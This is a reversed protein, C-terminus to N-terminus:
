AVVGKCWGEDQHIKMDPWKSICKSTTHLPFKNPSVPRVNIVVCDQDCFSQTGYAPLQPPTGMAPVLLSSCKLLALLMAGFTLYYANKLTCRRSACPSSTCLLRHALCMCCSTPSELPFLVYPSCQRGLLM